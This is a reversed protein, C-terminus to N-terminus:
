DNIFVVKEAPMSGQGRFIRIGLLAVTNYRKVRFYATSNKPCGTSSSRTGIPVLSLSIYGNKRKIGLDAVDRALWSM